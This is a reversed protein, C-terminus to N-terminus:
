RSGVTLTGTGVVFITDDNIFTIKWQGNKNKLHIENNKGSQSSNTEFKKDWDVRAVALNGNERLSINKVSIYLNFNSNKDFTDQIDRKFNAFKPYEQADFFSLFDNLREDIYLMRIKEFMDAFEKKLDVSFYRLVVVKNIIPKGAKDMGRIVLPYEQAEQPVFEFRFPSVGQANQWTSGADLSIAISAVESAPEIGGMINIKGSSLDTKNIELYDQKLADRGCIKLEKLQMAIASNVGLFVITFIVIIKLLNKMAM